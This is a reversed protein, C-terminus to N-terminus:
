GPVPVRGAPLGRVILGIGLALDVDLIGTDQEAVLRVSHDAHATREAPRLDGGPTKRQLAGVGRLMLDILVAPIPPCLSTSSSAFSALPALPAVSAELAAADSLLTSANM